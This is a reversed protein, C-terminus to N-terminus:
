IAALGRGLLDLHLLTSNGGSAFVSSLGMFHGQRGDALDTRMAPIALQGGPLRPGARRWYPLM